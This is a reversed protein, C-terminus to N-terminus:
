LQSRRRPVMGERCCDWPVGHESALEAVLDVLDPFGEPGATDTVGNGDDFLEGVQQEDAAEVVKMGLTLLDGIGNAHWQAIRHEPRPLIGQAPVLELVDVRLLHVLPHAILHEGEDLVQVVGVAGEGLVHLVGDEHHGLGRHQIQHHLQDVLEVQAVAVGTTVEVFVHEGLQAAGAGVALEAGRPMDDAQHHRHGRRHQIAVLAVGDTIRGGAGAAEQHSGLFVHAGAIAVRHRSAVVLLVEVVAHEGAEVEVLVHQADAGHVQQQVPDVVGSHGVTVAQAVM